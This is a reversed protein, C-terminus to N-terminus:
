ERNIHEQWRQDLEAALESDELETDAADAALARDPDCYHYWDVDIIKRSVLDDMDADDLWGHDYLAAADVTDIRDAMAEVYLAELDSQSYLTDEVLEPEDATTADVLKSQDQLRYKAPLYRDDYRANAADIGFGGTYQSGYKGTQWNGKSTWEKVRSIFSPLQHARGNADIRWTDGECLPLVKPRGVGALAAALHGKDSSFYLAGNHRAMALSQKHAQLYVDDGDTWWLGWHGSIDAFAEQYQGNAAALQDFLYQSDVEYKNPAGVIGNHAGVFRGYAFPHANRDIAKGRTGFRTHGLVAWCNRWNKRHRHFQRSALLEFPDDAKKWTSVIGQGDVIAFGMSDQGRSRNLAALTLLSREDINRGIAGFIGCM